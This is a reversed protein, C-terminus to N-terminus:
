EYSIGTLWLPGYMPVTVCLTKEAIILLKGYKEEGEPDGGEWIVQQQGWIGISVRSTGTLPATVEWEWFFHRQAREDASLLAAPFDQIVTSSRIDKSCTNADRTSFTALTGSQQHLCQHHCQHSLSKLAGTLERSFHFPAKQTKQRINRRPELTM